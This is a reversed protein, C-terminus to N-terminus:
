QSFGWNLLKKAATYRSTVSNTPDAHLVVGILTRSGRRAEFLLCDGAAATSGTKIGIAGRYSGILKDTSHWYYKHHSQTAGIYHTRQGVIGQFVPYRMAAEGLKLLSQPTSYTSWEKPLPLGDFNSFHTSTLGITKAMANMKRVFADRGPGYATALLYAADCGSPVLMGELLQRATLVDGAVLGASSADHRRVYAVAAATVKIEQNLHGAKLVVLATMVKTISGIPRHATFGRSWMRKGTGVNALAGATARVGAPGSRHPTSSHPASGRSGSGHSVSGHSVSSGAPAALASTPALTFILAATGATLAGFRLALPRIRLL